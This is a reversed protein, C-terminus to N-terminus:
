PTAGASGLREKLEPPLNAQAIAAHAGAPDKQLWAGAAATIQQDRLTSDSMTLALQFAQAPAALDTAGTFAAVAIDRLHGDPLNQIWQGAASASAITWTQVLSSVAQDQTAGQPFQLVWQATDGPATQAWMSVVGLAAQIQASGGPLSAAYAAAAAPDREAWITAVRAVAADQGSGAPLSAAWAAAASPDNEAWKGAVRGLFELDKQRVAFAAAAHPDASTWTDSMQRLASSKAPSDPLAEVWDLAQHLSAHAWQAAVTALLDNWEAASGPSSADIMQRLQAAAAAPSKQAWQRFFPGDLETQVAPPLAVRMWSFMASPDGQAMSRAFLDRAQEQLPDAGGRRAFWRLAGPMDRDGWSNLLAARVKSRLAPNQISDTKEITAAIAPSPISDAWAQLLADQRAPDTEALGADLGPRPAFNQPLNDPQLSTVPLVPPKKQVAPVPAPFVFRWTSAVAVAVAVLGVVALLGLVPIKKMAPFIM